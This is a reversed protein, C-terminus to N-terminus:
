ARMEEPIWARIVLRVEEQLTKQYISGDQEQPRANPLVLKVDPITCMDQLDVNWEVFNNLTLQGLTAGSLININMKNDYHM